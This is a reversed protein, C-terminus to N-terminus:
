PPAPAPAPTPEPSPSPSPPPKKARVIPPPLEEPDEVLVTHGNGGLLVALAVIGGLGIGAAGGILGCTTQEGGDFNTGLECTSLGVVGGVIGSTIAPHRIAFACNCLALAILLALARM